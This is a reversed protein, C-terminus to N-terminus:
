GWVLKFATAHTQSRFYFTEGLRTWQGEYRFGVLPELHKAHVLAASGFNDQCWFEAAAHRAERNEVQQPDFRIKM